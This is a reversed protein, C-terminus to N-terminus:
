GPISTSISVLSLRFSPIAAPVIAATPRAQNTHFEMFGVSGPAPKMLPLPRISAVSISMEVVRAPRTMSIETFSPSITTADGAGRLESWLSNLGGTFPLLQHKSDLRLDTVFQQEFMQLQHFGAERSPTALARDLLAIAM